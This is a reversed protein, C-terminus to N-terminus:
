YSRRRNTSETETVSYGPSDVFILADKLPNRVTSPFPDDFRAGNRERRHVTGFHDRPNTQKEFGLSKTRSSFERSFEAIRNQEHICANSSKTFIEPRSGRRSRDADPILSEVFLLEVSLQFLKARSLRFPAMWHTM